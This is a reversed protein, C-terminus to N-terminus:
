EILELLVGKAQLGQSEVVSPALEFIDKKKWLKISVQSLICDGSRGTSQDVSGLSTGLCYPFSVSGSGGNSHCGFTEGRSKEEGLIDQGNGDKQQKRKKWQSLVNETHGAQGFNLMILTLLGVTLLGKYPM